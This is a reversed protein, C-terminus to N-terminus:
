KRSWNALRYQTHTPLQSIAMCANISAATPAPAHLSNARLATRAEYSQQKAWTASAPHDLQDDPLVWLPAATARSLLPAQPQATSPSADFAGAIFTEPHLAALACPPTARASACIPM